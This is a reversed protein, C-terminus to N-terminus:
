DESFWAKFRAVLATLHGQAESPRIVVSVRGNATGERNVKELDSNIIWNDLRERGVDDHLRDRVIPVLEEFLLTEYENDLKILIDHIKQNIEVSEDDVIFYAGIREPNDPAEKYGHTQNNPNIFITRCNPDTQMVNDIISIHNQIKQVVPQSIYRANLVAYNPNTVSTVIYMTITDGVNQLRHPSAKVVAPEVTPTCAVVYLMLVLISFMLKKMIEKLNTLFKIKIKVFNYVIGNIINSLFFLLLYLALLRLLSV